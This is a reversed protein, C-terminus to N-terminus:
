SSACGDSTPKIASEPYSEAVHLAETHNQCSKQLGSKVAGICEAALNKGLDYLDEMQTPTLKQDNTTIQPFEPFSKRSPIQQGSRAALKIYIITATKDQDPYAAALKVFRNKDGIFRLDHMLQQLPSADIIALQESEAFRCTARLDAFRFEPDYAADVCVIFNAKRRLLAIMGLNDTFGGDYLRLIRDSPINSLMKWCIRAYASWKSQVEFHPFWRGTGGSFISLFDLWSWEHNVLDIASGSIAMADALKMPTLLRSTEIYHISATGCAMPTLEFPEIHINNNATANFIPYPKRGDAYSSLENNKEAFIERLQNRYYSFLPEDVFTMEFRRNFVLTLILLFFATSGITAYRALWNTDTPLDTAIIFEFWRYLWFVFIGSLILRPVHRYRRMAVRKHPLQALYMAMISRTFITAAFIGASVKLATGSLPWLNRSTYSFLIQTLLLFILAVISLWMFRVFSEFLFAIIATPGHYSPAKFSRIPGKHEASEELMYAAAYGGGSVASVYTFHKLLDETKLTDIVGLAVMAARVGGGSLALGALVETQDIKLLTREQSILQEISITM